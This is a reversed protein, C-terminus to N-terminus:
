RHLRQPDLDDLLRVTRPADEDQVMVGAGPWYPHPPRAGALLLPEYVWSGTNLLSPGIPAWEAPADEPLPGARHLHGFVVHDARVGMREVVQAFAPLGTFRFQYGLAGASLPALGGRTLHAIVPVYLTAARHATQVSLDLPVGLMRPLSVSSLGLLAAGAAGTAVEYDEATAGEHPVTGFLTRTPWGLAPLLHRDLYHGHTAWTRRNLRVGPYRVSVRAPALWRGIAALREDSRVPVRATLGIPKGQRHRDRLWPRVLAHDHNGAVLVVEGERGVAAGIAELVPRAAEMAKHVRGELLEVTDGLLVLREVDALQELLAALVAPRRLTDRGLRSGLHLDSIVLTRTVAARFALSAPHPYGQHM